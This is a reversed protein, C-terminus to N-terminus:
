AFPNNVNKLREAQRQEENIAYFKGTVSSSSHSAMVSADNISLLASTEDLNLHKLSYFDETIGLKKKILRYWRKTIQYAKIPTAGPLLGKSFVYDNPTCGAVAQLWFPLAVNKIPREVERIIADKWITLKFVNRELDIDKGKILIL